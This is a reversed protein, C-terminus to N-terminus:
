ITYLTCIKCSSCSCQPGKWKNILTKFEKISLVDKINNPLNNWTQSGNYRFSNFGYKTYKVKPQCIAKSNRTNYVNDSKELINQLYNPGINHYIKFIEIAIMRLREVYLLPRNSLHRLHQYTANYNGYIIRLARKQINEIKRMDTISCYNWVVPCFNFHSLIFSHFLKQKAEINLSKSLRRLVNIKRGAKKCLGDIHNTFTLNSDFTIGLLKVENVSGLKVNSDIGIEYKKLGNNYIIFHFKDPNAKLYNSKFWQIMISAAHQLKQIVEGATEGSCSITNDDAYNTIDCKEKLILLLDNCFINYALPGFNSGQPCGKKIQLWESKDNGIKVRQSRNYLYSAVLMCSNSDLGYALLKSLFLKHPLSDFAKSMDSLLSGYVKGNDLNIKCNEVYRLLVTQCSHQKRFGSLYPSFIQNFYTTLQAVLVGEFIKSLCPLTSVPRYNQKNLLDNKKFIPTIEARKLAEPFTSTRISFNVLYSVPMCLQEVGLRILKPSIRDYGTSKYVNLKILMKYITDASIHLFSFKYNDTHDKIVSLCNKDVHVINKVTYGDDLEDPEGIDKAVNVYHQNMVNAVSVPDSMINNNELLMINDSNNYGKSGVIPKIMKWFKRGNEINPNECCRSIYTKQSKRLLSKVKNRYTKYKQWNSDSKCADYRRRLMNKVNICKRLEDNMFHVHTKKVKRTKLPANEEIINSLIKNFFWYSDDVTDFIEAVHFPAYSLDQLYQSKDFHKYSRYTM